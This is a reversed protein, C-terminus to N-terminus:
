PRKLGTWRLSFCHTSSSDYESTKNPLLYSRHAGPLHTKQPDSSRFEWTDDAIQTQCPNPSPMIQRWPRLWCCAGNKPGQKRDQPSPNPRHFRPDPHPSKPGVVVAAPGPENQKQQEDQRSGPNLSRRSQIGHANPKTEKAYPPHRAKPYRSQADRPNARARESRNSCPRTAPSSQYGSPWHKTESPPHLHPRGGQRHHARRRLGVSARPNAPRPQAM